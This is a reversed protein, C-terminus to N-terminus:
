RKLAKLEEKVVGGKSYRAKEYLAHLAARNDSESLEAYDELEEPTFAQSAVRKKKKLITKKYTKRVQADPSFDFWLPRKGTNEGPAAAKEDAEPTLFEEEDGNEQYSHYFKKILAYIATAVSITFFVMFTIFIGLTITQSAAVLWAPSEPADPMMMGGQEMVMEETEEIVDTPANDRFHILLILKRFLWGLGRGISKVLEDLGTRPLFLMVLVALAVFVFMLLYNTRFIQRKPVNAVDKNLELYSDLRVLNEYICILIVYAFAQYYNLTSMLDNKLAVGLVYCAIFVLLVGPHPSSLPGRKEKVREMMRLAIVAITFIVYFVRIAIHPAAFWPALGSLICVLLFPFVSKVHKEAIGSVLYPVLMSLSCLLISVYTFGAMEIILCFLSMLATVVMAGHLYEMFREAFDRM